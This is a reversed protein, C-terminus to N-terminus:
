CDEVMEIVLLKVGILDVDYKVLIGNKVLFVVVNLVIQGGMILLLVDLREKVIVKEVFELILFEIYICEVIELDIM